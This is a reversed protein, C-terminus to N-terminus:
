VADRERERKGCRYGERYAPHDSCGERPALGARGDSFGMNRMTLDAGKKRERETIVAM